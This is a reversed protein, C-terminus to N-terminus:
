SRGDCLYCVVIGQHFIESVKDINFLGEASVIIDKDTPVASLGLAPVVCRRNSRIVEDRPDTTNDYFYGKFSIDQTVETASGTTPDYTASVEKRLTLTRGEQEVLKLLTYGFM